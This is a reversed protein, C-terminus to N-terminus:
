KDYVDGREKCKLDEYPNVIRRVFEMKQGELAGIIDNFTQYCDGKLGRYQKIVWSFAYNLEGATEPIKGRRDQPIYPM